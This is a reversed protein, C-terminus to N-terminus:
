NGSKNVKPAISVPKVATRAPRGLIPSVRNTFATEVAGLAISCKIQDGSTATAIVIFGPPKQGYYPYVRCLLCTLM